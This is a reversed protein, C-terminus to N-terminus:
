NPSISITAPTCACAQRCAAACMPCPELTVYLTCTDLRWDHLRRGAAALALLEAHATPDALEARRNGARAVIEGGCTVVAGVPVEDRAAAAEAERLAEAMFGRDADDFVWEPLM